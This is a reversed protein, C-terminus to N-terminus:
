IVIELSRASDSNVAKMITIRWKGSGKVSGKAVVDDAGAIWTDRKRPLEGAVRGAGHLKPREDGAQGGVIRGSVAVAPAVIRVDADIRVVVEALRVGGGVARQELGQGPVEAVVM